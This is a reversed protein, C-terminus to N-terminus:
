RTRARRLLSKTEILEIQLSKKQVIAARLAEDKRNQETLLRGNEQELENLLLDSQEQFQDYANQLGLMEVGRADLEKQHVMTLKTNVADLEELSQQLRQIEQSRLQLIASQKQLQDVADRAEAAHHATTDRLINLEKQLSAERSASDDDNSATVCTEQHLVPYTGSDARLVLEQWHLEVLEVLSDKLADLVDDAAVNQGASKLAEIKELTNKKWAPSKVLTQQLNTPDSTARSRQEARIAEGISFGSSKKKEAM